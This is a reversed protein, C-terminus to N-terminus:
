QKYEKLYRKFFWLIFINEDKKLQSRELATYYSMRQSYPIILMPYGNKHLVYNM